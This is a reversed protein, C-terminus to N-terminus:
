SAILAPNFRCARSYARLAEDAHGMTRFTHGEEQHARGHEPVMAKLQSLSELARDYDSLYRHCVATMYLADANDPAAERLEGLDNLARDFQKAVIKKQISQLSSDIQGPQM